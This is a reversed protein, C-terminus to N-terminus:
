PAPSPIRSALQPDLQVAKKLEANGEDARGVSRLLFGLNLHAAANSANITIVHRYLAEAEVPAPVTRIIALNFLASEFEPDINLAQRYNREAADNRGAQQDILGLNYYAYKNKPDLSLVKHYDDIATQTQGQSQALLGAQLAVSAQRADSNASSSGTSSCGALTLAIVFGAAGLIAGARWRPRFRIRTRRVGVIRLM